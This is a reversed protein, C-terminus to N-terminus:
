SKLRRRLVLALLGLGILAAPMPEPLGTASILASALAAQVPATVHFVDAYFFSNDACLHATIASCPDTFNVIGDAAAAGSSVYNQSWTVVDFLTVGPIGTLGTALLLNFQQVLFDAGAVAAPGFAQIRPTDGVDPANVVLFNSAGAAQLTLINNIIDAAADAIIANSSAPNLLADAMDNGGIMIMYLANVDLIGGAQALAASTQMTLNFPASLDSARGGAIAYNNAIGDAKPDDVSGFSNELGLGLQGALIEAATPGNVFRPPLTPDGTVIQLNGTESLSDGFVYLDTVPAASALSSGMASLFFLILIRRITTFCAATFYSTM